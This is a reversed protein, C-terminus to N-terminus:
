LIGECAVPPVMMGRERERLMQNFHLNQSMLDQAPRLNQMESLRGPSIIRQCEAWYWAPLVSTPVM